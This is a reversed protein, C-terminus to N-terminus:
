SCRLSISEQVAIVKRDSMRTTHAVGRSSQKSKDPIETVFDAASECIELEALAKDM